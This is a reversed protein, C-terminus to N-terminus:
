AVGEHDKGALAEGAVFAKTAPILHASQCHPCWVSIELTRLRRLEQATTEISSIVERETAPCRYALM